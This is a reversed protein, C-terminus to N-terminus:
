QIGGTLYRVLLGTEKESGSYPPMSTTLDTLMDLTSRADDDSFGEFSAALARYGTMTHCLGCHRNFVIKAAEPESMNPNVELPDPKARSSLFKALNAADTENGPFPPMKGICYQLRPILNAIFTQDLGALKDSLSNYGSITHCSRCDALYLDRGRDGTTYAIQRPEGYPAAEAESALMGNDYLFGHILYPKRLAERSWEFGGFSVLACLLLIAGSIYGSHRPFVLTQLGTLVFLVAASFLMIQLAIEPTSGPLIGSTIAAPVAKYYWLGFPVILILSVLVLLGNRRLIRKKLDVNKEKSVIFTAYLGALALAIFSRFFLSPWYTPNFFGDWFSGTTLWNGPTLMFTLIGNIIVLSLWAAIFYIWGIAMHASPSLRKWGYYYMLAATIEVFFFVWETAWGWVFTNILWKTGIPQILGITVWIGVGTLAGFVLTILAFFRSHRQVYALHDADNKRRAWTEALVLYLGGGIAFHSVFVHLIGIIAILLSNSIFPEWVPYPM